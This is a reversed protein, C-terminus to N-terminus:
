AGFFAAAAHAATASSCRARRCTIRATYWDKRTRRHLSESPKRGQSSEEEPIHISHEKMTLSAWACKWRIRAPIAKSRKSKEASASTCAFHDQRKWLVGCIKMRISRTSRTSGSTSPIVRVLSPKHQGLSPMLYPAYARVLDALEKDLRYLQFEFIGVVFPVLMYVQGEKMKATGIQGKLVMNDLISQMEDLMRGLRHAIADATEPIPRIKVAMEAEEPTFIKQLIRLEIGSDTAPFGNPLKDLKEALKKYSDNM